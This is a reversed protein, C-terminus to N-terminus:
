RGRGACAARQRELAARDLLDAAGAVRFLEEAAALERGHRTPDDAHMRALELHVQGEEIPMRLELASQLARDVLRNAKRMRGALRCARGRLLLARPRGIPFIRAHRDMVACARRLTADGPTRDASGERLEVLIEAPAAYAALSSVVNPPNRRGLDLLELATERAKGPRGLALDLRGRLALVAGELFADLIDSHEGFLPAMLSLNAEAEPYRGLELLLLSHLYLAEYRNRYYDSQAAMRYLKRALREGEEIRGTWLALPAALSMADSLRRHDGNRRALEMVGEFLTRSEDWHGQGMLFLGRLVEAFCRTSLDKTDGMIERARSFYADAVGPLPVISFGTAISAYSRCLEPSKGAAETLNLLRFAAYFGPLNRGTILYLETLREYARAVRLLTQRMSALRGVFTRPSLRHVIQRLLEWTTLVGFRFIGGPIPRDLCSLGQEIQREGEAYRLLNVEAEGLMLHWTARRRRDAANPGTALRLALALSAVAEENAFNRLATEASQELYGIAIPIEEAQEWHYALMPAAAALDAGYRIEYWRAVETHMHRRQSYLLGDYVVDRTVAHRFAYEEESETSRRLIGAQALSALNADLDMGPLGGPLIRALTSTVFTRGVVSAAKLTLQEPRPLQDVRSRILRNLSAPVMSEQTDLGGPQVICVNGDVRIWGSDRCALALEEAFLPNGQSRGTILRELRGPLGSVGLRDAVIQLIEDDDMPGLQLRLLDGDDIGLGSAEGLPDVAAPRSTLLLMLPAVERAVSGLLAWSTRNMWQVNEFVLLLPHPSDSARKRVLRVVLERTNDARVRGEMQHTTSSDDLASPLIAGLLPMLELLEDDGETLGSLREAVERPTATAPLELLDRLIPRWASYPLPRRVAEVQAVACRVAAAEAREVLEEALRSKGTGAEGELLILSSQGALLVDLQEGLSALEDARGVLPRIPQIRGTIRSPARTSRRAIRHVPLPQALGKVARPGLSEFQFDVEADARIGDSVLIEDPGAMQMLRAAVNVPRGLLGFTFREQSGYTGAYVRGRNIGVRVHEVVGLGASEEILASAAAVARVPDDEHGVIAGFAGYFSSGKDGISLQLMLGEYRALAAQACKVFVDLKAGAAPDSDYSIGDFQVFLTSPTRFEAFLASGTGAMQGLVQSQIWPRWMAAGPDADPAWIRPLTWDLEREEVVAFQEGEPATRWEKVDLRDSLQQVIEEGVVIDGSSALGEAAHIRDLLHGALADVLQIDADGVLFRRATGACVAVKLGMPPLTQARDVSSGLLQRFMEFACSIAGATRTSDFWCTIADGNFSIVAGGWAHVAEVMSTLMSNLHVSLAEAGRASGLERVLAESFPTFGSIDAFLVAGDSRDPLAEGATVAARRDIPVYSALRM